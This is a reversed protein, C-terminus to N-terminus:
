YNYQESCVKLHEPNHREHGASNSCGQNSDQTNGSALGDSLRYQYTNQRDRIIKWKLKEFRKFHTWYHHLLEHAMLRTFDKRPTNATANNGLNTLNIMVRIPSVNHFTIWEDIDDSETIEYELLNLLAQDTRKEKIMQVLNDANSPSLRRIRSILIETKQTIYGDEISKEIGRKDIHNLRSILKADIVANDSDKTINKLDLMSYTAPTIDAGDSAEGQIVVGGVAAHKEIKVVVHKPSNNIFTGVDGTKCRQLANNYYVVASDRDTGTVGSYDPSINGDIAPPQKVNLIVRITNTGTVAKIEPNNGSQVTYNYYTGNYTEVDNVYWQTQENSYLTTDNNSINIKKISLHIKEDTSFPADNNTGVTFHDDYLDIRKDPPLITREIEM